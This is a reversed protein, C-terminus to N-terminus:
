QLQKTGARNQKRAKPEASCTNQKAPDAGRGNGLNVDKDSDAALVTKATTKMVALFVNHSITAMNWIKISSKKLSEDRSMLTTTYVHGDKGSTLHNRDLSGM